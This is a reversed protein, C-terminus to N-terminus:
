SDEPQTASQRSGAVAPHVPAPRAAPRTDLALACETLQRRFTAQEAATMSAVMREEVAWVAPRAVTLVERGSRSLAPVPAISGSGNNAYLYIHNLVLAAVGCAILGFPQFYTNFTSNQDATKSGTKWSYAFAAATPEILNVAVIYPLLGTEKTDPARSPSTFIRM